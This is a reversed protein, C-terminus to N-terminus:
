VVLEPFYGQMIKLLTISNDSNYVCKYSFCQMVVFTKTLGFPYFPAKMLEEMALFHRIFDLTYICKKRNFVANKFSM